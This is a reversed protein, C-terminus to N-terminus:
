IPAPQGHSKQRRNRLFGIISNNPKSVILHDSQTRKKPEQTSNDEKSFLVLAMPKEEKSNGNVSTNDQTNDRTMRDEEDMM